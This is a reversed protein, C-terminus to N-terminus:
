LIYINHFLNQYQKEYEKIILATSDTSADDHVIIEIPFSTKQIIFGDLTQRIYKEHNYTTCVVSVLPVKNM